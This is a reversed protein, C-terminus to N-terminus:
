STNVAILIFGHLMLSDALSKVRVLSQQVLNNPNKEFAVLMQCTSTDSFPAIDRLPM